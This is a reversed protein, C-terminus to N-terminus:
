HGVIGLQQLLTLNDELHWNEAIRGDAIRYIDTAIFDVKQGKGQVGNFHGTFHGTFHLRGVVRDGVLLMEDVSTVLDPVAARFNRSAFLPGEIGQPRGPPLTRDIFNSDLAAKAFSADGTNWFAYYRRAALSMSEQQSPAIGKDVIVSPANPLASSDAASAANGMLTIMVAVVLQHLQFTSM